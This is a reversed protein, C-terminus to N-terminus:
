SQRYWAGSLLRYIILAASIILGLTLGWWLGPAQYGAVFAFLYACPLGIGASGVLHAILPWRTDSAGRLCGAGAAQLGDAIQFLGAIRLLTRGRRIVAADPTFLRMLVGPIALFTSASTVMVAAAAGMAVWAARNAGVRSRAGVAQGVRISGAAGIGVTIMFTSAALQLAIQHAALAEASLWGMMLAVASFMGIEAQLQLGIPLGIRVIERRRRSELPVTRGLGFSDRPYTRVIWGLALTMAGRAFCTAAACGPAGFRPLGVPGFLLLWNCLINVLNAMLVAILAPRTQGVGYLFGRHVAYVLIMPVSAAIVDIYAASQAAVEATVGLAPLTRGILVVISALPLSLALALRIGQRHFAGCERREGAGYAQSVLAELSKLMGMGLVAVAFSISNGLAVGALPAAGLRGVMATDVVGMAILGLQALAAPTALRVTARLHEGLPLDATITSTTLPATM